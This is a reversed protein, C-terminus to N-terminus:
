AGVAPSRNDNGPAGVGMGSIPQPQLHALQARLGKEFANARNLDARSEIEAIKAEDGRVKQETAIQQEPSPPPPAGAQEMMQLLRDKNPAGSLEILVKGLPGMAADGLQTLQMLLEDQMTIVDPGEEMIIDVDIAGVNNVIQAAGTMPDAQIQNLGIFQPADPNDTIRIYREGTWAQRIRAWVARYVRLKWDRLRDLVPALETIGSDRQTLLARGSSTAVGQGKGILGPNAGMNELEAKAETLLEAQGQMQATEEVPGIDQGWTGNHEIVGDPKAAQKRFEEVDDVVGARMHLKRTNLLHLFKSRRHNIEDQIPRMDRMLGYRDGREDIYPTWAIYPCATAGDEDVYPSPGGELALNGTFFCYQWQDGQPTAVKEWLEVVRVRRAEMDGWQTDRDAELTWLSDGRDMTETLQDAKDSWQAKADDLDYWLHLGMYRADSFDAEVSRPDYFFRDHQVPRIKVDPGKAGAKIGVWVVGIGAVYGDSAASSALAEWRCVDTIFRIAATAVDAAPQDGPNRPYAKPDRRQRSEVGVMFDIKRRVRNSTIVPQKRKKFVELEADTWQRGHYYKRAERQETIERDKNSEYNRFMRRKRALEGGLSDRSDNANTRPDAVYGSSVGHAM